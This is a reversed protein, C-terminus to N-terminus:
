PAAPEEPCLPELGCHPVVIPTELEDTLGVHAKVRVDRRVMRGRIFKKSEQAETEEETFHAWQGM